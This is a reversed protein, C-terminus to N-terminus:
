QRRIPKMTTSNLEMTMPNPNRKASACARRRPPTALAVNKVSQGTFQRRHWVRAVAASRLSDRSGRGDTLALGQSLTPVFKMAWDPLIAPMKRSDGADVHAAFTPRQARQRSGVALLVASFLASNFPPVGVLRHPPVSSEGDTLAVCSDDRPTSLCLQPCRSAPHATHLGCLAMHSGDQVFKPMPSNLTPLMTFMAPLPSLGFACYASLPPRSYTTVVSSTAQSM